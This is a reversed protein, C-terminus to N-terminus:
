APSRGSSALLPSAGPPPRPLRLRVGQCRQKSAAIFSAWRPPPHHECCGPRLALGVPKPRGHCVVRYPLPPQSLSIGITIYFPISINGETIAQSSSPSPINRQKVELQFYCPHNAPWCTSSALPSPRPLIPMSCAPFPKTDCTPM